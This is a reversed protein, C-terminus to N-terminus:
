PYYGSGFLYGDHMAVWSKKDALEGTDPHEFEYEIWTGTGEMADEVIQEYPRDAETLAVAVEGVREPAFGHAVITLSEAEVVFPYMEGHANEANTIEEFRINGSDMYNRIEAAVVKQSYHLDDDMVSDKMSDITSDVAGEMAQDFENVLGALLVAPIIVAAAICAIAINRKGKEM